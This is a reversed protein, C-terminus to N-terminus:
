PIVGDWVGTTNEAAGIVQLAGGSGGWLYGYIQGSFMYFRSAYEKGLKAAAADVRYGGSGRPTGKVNVLYGGNALAFAIDDRNEPQELPYAHQFFRRQWQDRPPLYFTVKYEPTTSTPKFRASVKTHTSPATMETENDIVFNDANFVPDVSEATVLMPGDLRAWARATVALARASFLLFSLALCGGYRIAGKVRRGTCSM